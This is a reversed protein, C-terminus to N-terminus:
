VGSPQCCQMRLHAHSCCLHRALSHAHLRGNRRFDQLLCPASRTASDIPRANPVTSQPHPHCVVVRVSPGEGGAAPLRYLPHTPPYRTTGHVNTRGDVQLRRTRHADALRIQAIGHVTTRGDGQLHCMHRASAPRNKEIEAVLPRILRSSDSWDQTEIPAEYVGVAM